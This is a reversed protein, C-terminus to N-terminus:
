LRMGTSYLASSIEIKSGNFSITVSGPAEKESSRGTAQTPDPEIRFSDLPMGPPILDIIHLDFAVVTALHGPQIFT